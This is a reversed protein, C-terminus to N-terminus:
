PNQPGRSKSPTKRNKRTTPRFSCRRIRHSPTTREELRRFAMSAAALVRQRTRSTPSRLLYRVPEGPKSPDVACQDRASPTSRSEGGSAIRVKTM